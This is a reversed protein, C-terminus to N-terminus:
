VQLSSRIGGPCSLASTPFLFLFFPVDDSINFHVDELILIMGPELLTEEHCEGKWMRLKAENLAEARKAPVVIRIQNSMTSLRGSTLLFAAPEKNPNEVTTWTVAAKIEDIRGFIEAAIVKCHKSFEYRFLITSTEKTPVHTKGNLILAAILEDLRPTTPLVKYLSM